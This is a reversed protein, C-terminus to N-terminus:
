TPTPSEPAPAPAFAAALLIGVTLPGVYELSGNVAGFALIPLLIITASASRVLGFWIALWGVFAFFGVQVLVEIIDSHGILPIGLEALEFRMISRLGTGFLWAGPGAAEWAKFAVTWILGRGSGATSFSSFENGSHAFRTAVVDLAGTAFAVTGILLLVMLAKLKAESKVLFVILGVALGLLASRVGTLASPVAGLGFFGVKLWSSSVTLGTVAVIMTLLALPHPGEGAFGLKEGAGYYSSTSGLGASIVGLHVVMAAICSGYVPWRFESALQRGRDCTTALAIAAFVMYKAAQIAELRDTAFIAHGLVIVVFFFSAVPILRSEFSLPWVLFLLAGTGCAAALTGLESPLVGEFTVMWPLLAFASAALAFVGYRVTAITVALAGVSLAALVPSRGVLIGIFVASSAALAPM